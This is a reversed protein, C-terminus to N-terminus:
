KKVLGAVQSPIRYFVRYLITRQACHTDAGHTKEPEFGCSSDAAIDNGCSLATRESALYSGHYRYLLRHFVGYIIRTNECPSSCPSLRLCSRWCTRCGCDSSSPRTIGRRRSQTKARIPPPILFWGLQQHWHVSQYEMFKFADGSVTYNVLCYAAFGLPVIVLSLYERPKARKHVLELLIPVILILGPSRTFAAYAGILSGTILKGRRLLYLCSVTCLVFLSESM